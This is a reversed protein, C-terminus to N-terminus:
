SFNARSYLNLLHSIQSHAPLARGQQIATVCMGALESQLSPWIAADKKKLKFLVAGNGVQATSAQDDVPTHLLCEFIYPPYSM